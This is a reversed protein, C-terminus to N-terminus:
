LRFWFSIRTNETLSSGRGASSSMLLNIVLRGVFGNYIENLSYIVCSLVAITYSVTVASLSGHVIIIKIFMM